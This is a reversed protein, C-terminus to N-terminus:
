SALVPQRTTQQALENAHLENYENIYSDMKAAEDILSSLVNNVIKFRESNDSCMATTEEASASVEESTSSLNNNNDVIVMNTERLLKTKDNMDSSKDKLDFLGSRINSFNEAIDHIMTVQGNIEETVLDMSSITATANENLKSIIAEINQTSQKTQESLIRIENAVVAFGKGADGARAAEISANLALLNTQSSIQQIIGIIKQMDKTHSHLEAM